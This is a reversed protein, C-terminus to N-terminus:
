WGRTRGCFTTRSSTATCTGWSTCRGCGRRRSSSRIVIEIQDQPLRVDLPKGDVWEMVLFAEQVKLLLSRNVKLDYSKRLNAHNFQKSIEFEQEMQEIFRIDKPDDRVVHKLAFRKQTSNDQVLYITSRAGEGIRELVEYQLLKQAM